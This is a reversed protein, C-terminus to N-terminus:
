RVASRSMLEGPDDAPRPAASTVPAPAPIPRAIASRRARSPHATATFSTSGARAASTAPSSWAVPARATATTASTPSRSAASRMTASAEGAEAWDIEQDVVGAEAPQARDGLVRLGVPAGREADVHVTHEEAALGDQGCMSGRPRPAM